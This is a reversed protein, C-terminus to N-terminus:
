HHHQTSPASAPSFSVDQPMGMAAYVQSARASSANLGDGAYYSRGTNPNPLSAWEQSLRLAFQRKSIRGAVFDDWGRRKLLAMALHDQLDATFKENGTLGLDQKLGRLTKYIFQPGGIATSAAGRARAAVQMSLVQNLTFASLDRKNNANGYVANYNGSAEHQVILRILRAARPDDVAPMRGASSAARGASLADELDASAMAKDIFGSADEVTMPPVPQERQAQEGPNFSANQVLGDAESKQKPKLIEKAYDELTQGSAKAAGEMQTKQEPTLGNLFDGVAAKQDQTEGDTPPPTTADAKPAPATAPADEYPNPFTLQENNREYKGPDLGSSDSTINGLINKGLKGIVEETEQPTANPHAVTWETVLRKFDYQAEFGENSLGAIPQGFDNQGKTRVDIASMISNYTSGTTATKIRDKNDEFGKAFTYAAQLDAPTGFVGNRWGDVVADFGEGNLVKDYVGNVRKPDSFGQNLNKRWEEVHVKFLPDVEGQKLIGDPIPASANEPKSLFDIAQRTASDKQEKDARTQAAVQQTVNERAIVELQNTTQLKIKQGEPSEGYTYDKGPVQQDFFALLGPDRTELIKAAMASMMTKDFVDPDGGSKVFDARKELVKQFVVPYNTGEKTSLGERNLEDVDQTAGAVHADLSGQVTKTHRYDQYMAAGDAELQRVHPLLGRLTDPDVNEGLHDKLFGKVFTDYAAPDDSNKGDWADWAATFQTRLANGAVNGQAAKFGKVFGPSYQAPLKGSRVATAIDGENDNYYAAEGRLQDEKAQKEARDDLFQQLPKDFKSLSDALDRLPSKGPDVFTNVPAAQPQLLDTGLDTSVPKRAM